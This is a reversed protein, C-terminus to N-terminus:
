ASERTLTIWAPPPTGGAIPSMSLGVITDCVTGRDDCLWLDFVLQRPEVARPVVTCRREGSPTPRALVRRAFGTPYATTGAHRQGWVCALHMASDVLYPCGALPPLEPAPGPSCVIATGGAPGLRVTDRLNCYRPGFTILERYIREAAVEFDCAPPAPPLPPEAAEAAFTMQAHERTRRMGNPLALSSRLAARLGHETRALAVELSCRPLDPAPLFRPFAVEAVTLPLPLPIPWREHEAVTKVLLEILWVAPVIGRGAIAHDALDPVDPLAVPLVVPSTAPVVM